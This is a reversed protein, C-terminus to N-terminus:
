CGTLDEALSGRGYFGIRKNQKKKKLTSAISTKRLDSSTLLSTRLWNIPFLLSKRRYDHMSMSPIFGSLAEPQSKDLLGSM